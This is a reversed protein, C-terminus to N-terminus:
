LAKLGFKVATKFLILTAGLWSSYISLLDPSLITTRDKKGMSCRIYVLTKESDIDVIKLDVSDSDTKGIRKFDKYMISYIHLM